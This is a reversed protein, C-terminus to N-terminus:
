LETSAGNPYYGGFDCTPVDRIWDDDVFQSEMRCWMLARDHKFKVFEEVTDFPSRHEVPSFIAVTIGFAASCLVVQFHFPVALFRMVMLTVSIQFTEAFSTLKM